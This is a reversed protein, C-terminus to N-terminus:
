DHDKLINYKSTFDKRLSSGHILLIFCAAPKNTLDINNNNIIYIAENTSLINVVYICILETKKQNSKDCGDQKVLAVPM